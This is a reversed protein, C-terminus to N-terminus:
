HFIGITSIAISEISSKDINFMNKNFLHRIKAKHQMTDTKVCMILYARARLPSSLM